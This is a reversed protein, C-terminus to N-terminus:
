PRGAAPRRHMEAGVVYRRVSADALVAEPVGDAIVRGEYFAIVRGAYREVIEMDHEIFLVTAESEGTAGMVLDMLPYKEEASIGSTPEDLLLMDSRGITALAIDLLKRQGQPLEGPPRAAARALGFRSLIARSREMREPLRLPEAFSPTASEASALAVAVNDIVPLNPFLQAVQFSRSIGLRTIARPSLATIDQGRLLIRGSDPKLHGTVMNVFTTKGAGNAGIIGITVGEVVDVTVADAAVVAGFRKNLDEARMLHRTM